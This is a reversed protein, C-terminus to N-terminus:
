AAAMSGYNPKERVWRECNFFQILIGETIARRNVCIILSSFVAESRRPALVIPTSKM